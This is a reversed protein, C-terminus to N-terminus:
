KNGPLPIEGSLVKLALEAEDMALIKEITYKELYELIHIVDRTLFALERAQRELRDLEEVQEPTPDDQRWRRIQESYWWQDEANNRYLRLAREIIEDDLVSPKPIAERFNQFQIQTDKLQEEVLDVVLYLKNLSHFRPTKEEPIM